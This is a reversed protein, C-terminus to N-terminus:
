KYLNERGDDCDCNVRKYLRDFSIVLLAKNVPTVIASYTKGSFYYEIAYKKPASRLNSKEVDIKGTKLIKRMVKEDIALCNMKCTTTITYILKTSDTYGYLKYEVERSRIAKQVYPNNYKRQRAKADDQRTQAILLSGCCVLITTLIIKKM